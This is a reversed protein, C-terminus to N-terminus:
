EPGFCYLHGDESAIYVKGDFYAPSSSIMGKTQYKWLLKGSFRNLVYFNGDYSGFFLMDGVAIPSSRILGNTKYKWVLAGDVQNLAYMCYDNSGFYVLSDAAAPSSYLDTGTKYSWLQSGDKLDLAFLEGISSGFFVKGNKIAPSTYIGAGADFEWIMKGSDCELAYFHGNISGFYILAGDPNYESSVLCAPTSIISGSTKFRWVREGTERDLAWLLGNGSGVLLKDECLVPSSSIDMIGKKWLDKGNKSDFAILTEKGQDTGFYVMPAEACASTSIGSSIKYVGLKKGTSADLFRIRKALSGVVLIKGFLVPTSKVPKGFDYKWLLQNPTEMVQPVYATNQHDGRFSNWGQPVVPIDDRYKFTGSCSIVALVMIPFLLKKGTLLEM